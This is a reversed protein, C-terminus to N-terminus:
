RSGLRKSSLTEPRITTATALRRTPSAFRTSTLIYAYRVFPHKHERVTKDIDAASLDASVTAFVVILAGDLAAAKVFTKLEISGRTVM